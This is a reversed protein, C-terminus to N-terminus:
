NRWIGGTVEVLWVIPDVVLERVLTRVVENGAIFDAIPPSLRYYLSVFQSGLASKLLAADRFERLVDIQEATPTGYAATAIFCGHQIATTFHLVNGEIVTGNYKLQAKFDYGTISALGTLRETHTGSASKSVWGTYSWASDSSKKYAFRVQVPDFSGVTYSMHLTTSNTAAPQTSVKPYVPQPPPPPPVQEKEFVATISYWGCMTITTSPGNVDAITDVNGAWNVFKYGPEPIAELTVVCGGIYPFVGEGPAIVSGGETSSIMLAYGSAYLVQMASFDQEEVQGTAPATVFISAPYFRYGALSATIFIHEGRPVGTLTYKGDSDTVDTAMWPSTHGTVLVGPLPNGGVRVTGSVSTYFDEDIEGDCDNDKGDCLEPAGPYVTGDSDDCDTNDLVYGAPQSFAQKSENVDGYGDGDADRYWTCFRFVVTSNTAVNQSKEQSAGSYFVKFSYNVPLLEMTAPTTGNGFTKWGSAYYQAAGALENNSSDLLKMTALATQFVVTSNTAVNQSKEQSAGAYSVRFNYNVPLLEMTATTTGGGFTKWGGAYYQAGAN